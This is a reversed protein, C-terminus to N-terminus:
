GILDYQSCEEEGLGETQLRTFNRDSVKNYVVSTQIM